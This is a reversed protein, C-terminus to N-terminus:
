RPIVIRAGLYSKNPWCLPLHTGKESDATSIIDVSMLHAVMM